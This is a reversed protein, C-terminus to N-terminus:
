RLPGGPHGQEANALGFPTKNESELERLIAFRNHLAGPCGLKLLLNRFAVLVPKAEIVLAPLVCAVALSHDLMSTLKASTFGDTSLMIVTVSIAARPMLTPFYRKALNLTGPRLSTNADM